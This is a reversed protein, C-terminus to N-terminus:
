IVAEATNSSRSRPASGNKTKKNKSYFNRRNNRTRNNRSKERQWYEESKDTAFLDIDATQVPIKMGIYSEIAELHNAM